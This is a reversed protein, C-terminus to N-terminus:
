HCHAATLDAGDVERLSQALHRRGGRQESFARTVKRVQTMGVALRFSEGDETLRDRVLQFPVTPQADLRRSLHHGRDARGAGEHRREGRQEVGSVAYKQKLGEVAIVQGRELQKVQVRFRHPKGRRTELDDLFRYPGGDSIPRPRQDEARRIVRAPPPKGYRLQHRYGTASSFSRSTM